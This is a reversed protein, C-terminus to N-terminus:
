FFLNCYNTVQNTFSVIGLIVTTKGTWNNNIKKNKDTIKESTRHALNKERILRNYEKKKKVVEHYKM